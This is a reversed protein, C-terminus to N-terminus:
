SPRVGIHLIGLGGIQAWEVIPSTFVYYAYEARYLDRHKVFDSRIYEVYLLVIKSLNQYDIQFQSINDGVIAEVADECIHNYCEGLFDPYEERNEWNDLTFHSACELLLTPVSKRWEEKVALLKELRFEDWQLAIDIHARILEDKRSRIISVFRSLKSEYEYFRILIICAEFYLKKEALVKGLTFAHNMGERIIDLLSNLYVYEEKAVQQKIVWNPTIRKGEVQVETVIRKYFDIDERGRIPDNKEVDSGSDIGDVIKSVIDDLKFNTYVKGSELILDLYLLSLIDIVGAFAKKEDGDIDTSIIGKEVAKKILDVQSVYFNAEKHEIATSCLQKFEIMYEYISLYDHVEFFRSLCSKNIAMLEEEFWWYNHEEKSKLSTGTRLALSLEVNSILHWKPYKPTNKYWLSSRSIKRKNIWYSKILALNYGMFEAMASNETDDNKSIGSEYKQISKLLRIQKEAVKLFHNQFDADNAFIGQNIRKTIIRYLARYTDAAVEYVDSLQYARNGAISYSIVIAISRLMFVIVIVWSIQTKMMTVFIILFCFVIYGVIGSICRRSLSDNQFAYAINHPANTYRSSYISTINACYLGLIVGAFGIGGIVTPIFIDNNVVPIDKIKSQVGGDLWLVAAIFLANRLICILTSKVIMARFSSYERAGSILDDVRYLCSKLKFLILLLLKRAKWYLETNM